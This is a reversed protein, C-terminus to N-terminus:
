APIERVVRVPWHTWEGPSIKPVTRLGIVLGEIQSRVEEIAEGHLDVITGILQGERIASGLAVHNRLWGGSRGSAWFGEVLRYVAPLGQPEGELLGLRRMLNGIGRVTLAVWEERCRGEGGVEVAMNPIGHATACGNFSTPMGPYRPKSPGSDLDWILELGFAKALELSRGNSLHLCAFDSQIDNATAGHIDLAHTVHPFVERVVLDALRESLFGDPRGPFIRNLNLRDHPGERTASEFAPVNLFPIAVLGGALREPDLADFVRLISELGVYENGHVGSCLFLTPGDRAGSALLLPVRLDGSHTRAVPLWGKKKEGRGAALGGISFVTRM